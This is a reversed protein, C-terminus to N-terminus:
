KMKNKQLRPYDCSNTHPGPLIPFHTHRSVNHSIGLYDMFIPQSFFSFLDM